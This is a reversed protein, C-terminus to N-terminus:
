IHTYTHQDNARHRSRKKSLLFIYENRDVKHSRACVAGGVVVVVVDPKRRSPQLLAATAQLLAALM